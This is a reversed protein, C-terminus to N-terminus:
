ILMTSSSAPRSALAQALKHLTIELPFNWPVIAGVVGVPEKVVVRRASGMLSNHVPLQREWPFSDIAEAPATVAEALPMDLQPGYTLLLPAGVEAILTQRLTEREKELASQLQQLCRQRFARDTAWPTTDFARRAAGIARDMDAETGDPAQGIPEETAPNINPYERGGEAEVLEGDILMREGM